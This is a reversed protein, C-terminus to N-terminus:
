FPVKKEKERRGYTKKFLFALACNFHFCCCYEYYANTPILQRGTIYTYYCICNLQNSSVYCVNATSNSSAHSMIEIHCVPSLIYSSKIIRFENIPKFDHSTM